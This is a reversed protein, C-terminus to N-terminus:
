CINIVETLSNDKLVTKVYLYDTININAKLDKSLSNQTNKDPQQLTATM